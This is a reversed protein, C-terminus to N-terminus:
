FSNLVTKSSIDTIPPSKYKNSHYLIFMNGVSLPKKFYVVNCIGGSLGDNKGVTLSDINVYPVISKYNGNDDKFKSKSIVLNNDVFVDMTANNCNFVINTWKQIPMNDNKYIIVQEESGSIDCIIQFEHKNPNYTFNPKNAYNLISFYNDSNNSQSSHLYMWFSISYNYKYDSVENLTEYNGLHYEKNLHIPNNILVKGDQTVLKNNIKKISIYLLSFVAIFFIILMSVKDQQNYFSVKGDNTFLYYFLRYIFDFIDNLLCPIYFIGDFILNFINDFKTDSTRYKAKIFKYFTAMLTLLILITITKGLTTMEGAFDDILKLSGIVGLILIAIGIFIGLIKSFNGGKAAQDGRIPNKFFTFINYAGWILGVLVTSLVMPLFQDTDKYKTATLVTMIIIFAFYFIYSAMNLLKKTRTTKEFTRKIDYNKFPNVRNVVLVNFLQIFALIGIIIIILLSEGFNNSIFNGPDKIYFTLLTAIVSFFIMVSKVRNLNFNNLDLYSTTFSKYLVFMYFLSLVPISYKATDHFAHKKPLSFLIIFLLTSILLLIPYKFFNYKVNDFAFAFNSFFSSSNYSSKSKSDSKSDSKPFSFDFKFQNKLHNIYDSDPDKNTVYYIISILIIILIFAILINSLLIFSVDKATELPKLFDFNDIM